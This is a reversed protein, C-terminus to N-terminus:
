PPTEPVIHSVMRTVVLGRQLVLRPDTHYLAQLFAEDWPTSGSPTQTPGGQFLRLITPADGHHTGTKLRAFAYMGIYDALQGIKVGQLQTEDVVVFASTLSWMATRTIRSDGDPSVFVPARSGFNGTQGSDATGTSFLGPVVHEDAKMTGGAAGELSNYWVRVPRPTDIFTKIATPTGDGFMRQHRRKSWKKLFSLPEETVFVSLNAPTCREDALPVGAARAVQSLRALVFEGQDRSLGVVAPCVPSNWRASGEDNELYLSESVFARVRPAIAERKAQVTVQPLGNQSTTSAVGGTNEAPDAMAQSAALLFLGSLTALVGASRRPLLRPFSPTRGSDEPRRTHV